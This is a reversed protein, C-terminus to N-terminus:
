YEDYITLEDLSLTKAPREGVLSVSVKANPAAGKSLATNGSMQGQSVQITTLIDKAERDKARQVRLVHEGEASALFDALKKATVAFQGTHQQARRRLEATALM